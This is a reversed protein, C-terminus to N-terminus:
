LHTSPVDLRERRFVPAFGTITFKKGNPSAGDQRYCGLLFFDCIVNSLYLFLIFNNEFTM